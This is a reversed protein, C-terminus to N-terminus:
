KEPGCLNLDRYAVNPKLWSAFSSSTAMHGVEKARFSNVASSSALILASVTRHARQASTTM